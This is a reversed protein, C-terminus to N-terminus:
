SRLQNQQYATATRRTLISRRATHRFLAPPHAITHTTVSTVVTRNLDVLTLAVRALASGCTVFREVPVRASTSRPVFACSAQGVNIVARGIRTAVTGCTVVTNIIIIARAHSAVFTLTERLVVVSYNTIIRSDVTEM